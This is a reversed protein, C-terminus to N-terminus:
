INLTLSDNGGSSTSYYIKIIIQNEDPITNFNVANVVINPFESKLLSTILDAIEELSNDEIQEFIIKQIGGGYTPNEIREGPMTLLYNIVNNKISEKTTYNSTIPNTASFSFLNIGVAYRPLLDIPNINRPNIAM